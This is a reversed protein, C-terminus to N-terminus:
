NVEQEHKEEMQAMSTFAGSLDPEPVDNFYYNLTDLDRSWGRWGDPDMWFASAIDPNEPDYDRLVYEIHRNMDIEEMIAFRIKKSRLIQSVFWDIM